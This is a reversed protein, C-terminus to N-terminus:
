NTENLITIYEDSLKIDIAAIDELYQEKKSFGIIPIIQPEYHLLWALVLQNATINLEASLKDVLELKKLNKKSNYIHWNYYQTRKIKDGYIGKLLPSYGLFAMNNQKVYNLMESDAHYAIGQDAGIVPHLYSYEQQMAAYSAWGNKKSINNSHKINATSINSCGIYRVKGEKVLTDLTQLTEEIPTYPDYVHTYYIDIYDTNLRKLSDEIGKRIASASLGEYEKTIRDWEPEGDANRINYPDKLRAGVKTALFIDSRNKRDKMWKGLVNESEDGINEGKGIWWAYCNATDFFNGGSEIFHDLVEFSTREDMVSGMLMCGLCFGSVHEGTEGFLIQKM